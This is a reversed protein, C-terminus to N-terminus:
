VAEDDREYEDDMWAPWDDNAAPKDEYGCAKIAQAWTLEEGAPTDFFEPHAKDWERQGAERRWQAEKRRQWENVHPALPPLAEVRAKVGALWEEDVPKSEPAPLPEREPKVPLPTDDDPRITPAAFGNGTIIITRGHLESSDQVQELGTAHVLQAFLRQGAFQTEMDDHELVVARNHEMGDTDTLTFRLESVSGGKVLESATIRGTIPECAVGLNAVTTRRAKAAKAPREPKQFGKPADEDYREDKLWRALTFRPANPKGQAAWSAQWAAAAAIVAAKDVEAPLAKWAERAEKKGKAYAYARWLAEFTPEAPSCLEAKSNQLEEVASGGAPPAALGDGHPPASPPRADIMRDRLDAQLGDVHLVSETNGAIGSSGELPIAQSVVSTNDAIGSPEPNGSTNGAIGSANEAVRDFHLKYATPRTGGGQLAVSFPGNECLRRLSSIVSPRTAGTAKELYRLSARSDGRDKRYNDIVEYAVSKDLGTAWDSRLV